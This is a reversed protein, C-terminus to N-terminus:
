VARQEEIREVGDLENGARVARNALQEVLAKMEPHYKLALLAKEYDTIKALVFTRLAIKSGTRGVSANVAKTEKEAQKAQQELAKAQVANDEQALKEAERRLRDAEEQAKRQREAEEKAKQQLYPDIHRKLKDSYAKPQEKLDRWKDDVARGADLHPQKEVKHLDNAKKAIAAMRKSWVAAQDAQEDTTIPKTLFESALELEGQFEISLAEFPDNVNSNHGIGITPPEDNWQGTQEYHSYAEYSVPNQCVWTWIDFPDADVGNKAATLVGDDYWIAVPEFPGDKFKRKRYYGCQPENEHVSQKKGALANEWWQYNNLEQIASM